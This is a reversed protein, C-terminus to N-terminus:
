AADCMSALELQVLVLVTMCIAFPCPCLCLPSAPPHQPMLLRHLLFARVLEKESILGAQRYHHFVMGLWSWSVFHQHHHMKRWVGRMTSCLVWGSAHGVVLMGAQMCYGLASGVARRARMGLHYRM